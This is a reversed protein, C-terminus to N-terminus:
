PKHRSAYVDLALSWLQDDHTGTPNTFKLTGSPTPECQQKTIQVLLKSNDRPITLEAHEMALKLKGIVGEKM